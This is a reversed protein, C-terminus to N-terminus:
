LESRCLMDFVINAFVLDDRPVLRDVAKSIDLQRFIHDGVKVPMKRPALNLTNRICAQYIQFAIGVPAQRYAVCAFGPKNM